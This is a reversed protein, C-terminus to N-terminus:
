DSDSWKVREISLALIEINPRTLFQRLAQAIISFQNNVQKRTRAHGTPQDDMQSNQGEVVDMETETESSPKPVVDAITSESTQPKPKDNKQEGKVNEDDVTGTIAANAAVLESISNQM